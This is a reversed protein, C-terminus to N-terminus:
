ESRSMVGAYFTQPYLYTCLKCSPPSSEKQAEFPEVLEIPLIRVMQPKKMKKKQTIDIIIALGKPILPVVMRNSAWCCIILAWINTM